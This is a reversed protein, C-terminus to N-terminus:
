HLQNRCTAQCILPKATKFPSFARRHIGDHFELHDPIPAIIQGFQNAMNESDVIKGLSDEVSHGPKQHTDPSRQEGSCLFLPVENM